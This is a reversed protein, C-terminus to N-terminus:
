LLAHNPKTIYHGRYSDDSMKFQKPGEHGEGKHFGSHTATNPTAPGLFYGRFQVYIGLVAMNFISICIYIYIHIYLYISMGNM